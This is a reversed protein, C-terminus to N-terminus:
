EEDSFFNEDLEKIQYTDRVQVGVNYKLMLKAMEDGDILKISKGLVHSVRDKAKDSFYSTTIFVGKTVPSTSLAGIFNQIERENVKNDVYRKAQLYIKDLGLADENVIGDIGGDHSKPTLSVEDGYGMAKMLELCIKEFYIPDTKKLQEILDQCTKKNFEEIANSIRTVPDTHDETIIQFNEMGPETTHSLSRFENFSSYQELFTNNIKKGTKLANKGVPTIAYTGRGERSILGARYMYYLAWHIRSRVIPKKGSPLLEQRDQSTLGLIPAVFEEIENRHKAKGDELAKLAPTMFEQFQPIPM